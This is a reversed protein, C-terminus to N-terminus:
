RDDPEGRRASPGDGLADMAAASDGALFVGDDGRVALLAVLKLSFRRASQGPALVLSGNGIIGEGQITNDVNTLTHGDGDIFSTGGYAHAISLTVTGGGQLTTDGNLTLAGNHNNGGNVQINGKNDITGGNVWLTNGSNTSLTNGSALQLNAVSANTDLTVASTGNTICVNTSPANPSGVPNWDSGTSWNGNGAINWTSPSGSLTCQARAAPIAFGLVFLLAAIAGAGRIAYEGLKRDSSSVIAPLM